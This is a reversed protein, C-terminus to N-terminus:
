VELNLLFKGDLKANMEKIRDTIEDEIKEIECLIYYRAILNEKTESTLDTKKINLTDIGHCQFPKFNLKECASNDTKELESQVKEKKTEQPIKTENKGNEHLQGSSETLESESEIGVYPISDEDTYATETETETSEFSANTTNIDDDNIANILSENKVSKGSPEEILTESINSNLTFRPESVENERGNKEPNQTTDISDQKNNTYAESVSLTQNDRNEIEAKVVDSERTIDESTCDKDRRETIEANEIPGETSSVTQNQVNQEDFVSNTTGDNKAVNSTEIKPFINGETYAKEPIANKNDDSKQSHKERFINELMKDLHAHEKSIIGNSGNTTGNLEVIDSFKEQRWKLLEDNNPSSFFDSPPPSVVNDFWM